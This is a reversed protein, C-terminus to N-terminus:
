GAGVNVIITALGVIATLLMFWKFYRMASDLRTRKIARILNLRLLEYVQCEILNGEDQAMLNDYYEKYTTALTDKDKNLGVFWLHKQVDSIGEAGGIYHKIQAMTKLLYFISISMCLFAAVMVTIYIYKCCLGHAAIIRIANSIDGRVEVLAYIILSYLAFVVGVKTETFRIHETADSFASTVFNRIIHNTATNDSTNM